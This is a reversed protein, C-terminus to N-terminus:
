QESSFPRTSSYGANHPWHFEQFVTIHLLWWCAGYGIAFYTHFPYHKNKEGEIIVSLAYTTCAYTRVHILEHLRRRYLLANDHLQSLVPQLCLLLLQFVPRPQDPESIAKNNDNDHVLRQKAAIATEPSFHLWRIHTYSVCLDYIWPVFLQLLVPIHMVTTAPRYVHTLIDGSIRKIAKLVVLPRQRYNPSLLLPLILAKKQWM